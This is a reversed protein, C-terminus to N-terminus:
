ILSQVPLIELNDLISIFNFNDQDLKPKDFLKSIVGGDGFGSQSRNENFFLKGNRKCYIFDVDTNALEVLKDKNKAFDVVSDSVGYSTENIEIIDDPDFGIIKTAFKTRYKSPIGVFYRNNVDIPNGTVPDKPIEYRVNGNKELNRGGEIFPGQMTNYAVIGTSDNHSELFTFNGTATNGTINVGQNPTVLEIASENHYAFSNNTIGNAISKKAKIRIAHDVRGPKGESSTDTVDDVGFFSNGSIVNGVFERADVDIISRDEFDGSSNGVVNGTIVAGSMGKGDVAVLTGGIDLQNGSIIAGKNTAFDGTFRAFTSKWGHVHNGVFELKRNGGYWHQNQGSQPTADYIREPFSQVISTRKNVFVSDKVRLGRGEHYMATAWKGKKNNLAANQHFASSVVAPDSDESNGSNAYRVMWLYVHPKTERVESSTAFSVNSITVNGTASWIGATVGKPLKPVRGGNSDKDFAPMGLSSNGPISINEMGDGFKGDGDPIAVMMPRPGYHSSPTDSTITFRGSSGNGHALTKSYGYKKGPTLEITVNSPNNEFIDQFVQTYDNIGWTGNNVLRKPTDINNDSAWEDLNILSM